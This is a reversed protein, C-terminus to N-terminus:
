PAWQGEVAFWITGRYLGDTEHAQGAPGLEGAPHFKTGIPSIGNLLTLGLEPVVAVADRADDPFRPTLLGLDLDDALVLTLVGRTTELKAWYVGGYFGALKPEHAWREATEAAREKRWVGLTGGERRNKWIRAPGRGLWEVARVTEPAVPFGVGFADRRGHSRFQYALRLWGSPSLTWRVFDLGDRYRAEVVYGAAERGHRVTALPAAAAPVLRPGDLALGGLTALRGTALDFVAQTAGAALTLRGGDERATVTGTGEGVLVSSMLRRDRRPLVWSQVERGAPDFAALELADAESSAPLPVRLRGREGPEAAPGPLEGSELVVGGSGDPRPLTLWAWRFRVAALDTMDFRNELELTGADPDADVLVVPSFIERLAYFSGSLERYPGLVGDPAHNGDTDLEGGRDSRVVAEDTFAWLFGGLALPSGRVLRWYDGLSAGSGGDYLGHLLETPLVLPPTRGLWRRWDPGGALRDRLEDYTPYHGADVGAATAHPHLVPRGQPDHEHFDGDLRVNWGGENGNAWFLISPHNVDREVMERVLRRGVETGYADHWGALEDIVYLGLEDCAELFSADPPYHSARVANLNMAKMLEVDRRDIARDLTRGSDPWFAHRNVGKLLVRRGNVFLGRGPLLEVTRFGFRESRRHLVEDGRRLELELRYLRPTEASWPRPEDVTAVLEVVEQGAAVAAAFTEGVEGGADVIRAELLAPGALGRLRARLLLAGDHRADVAVHGIAERPSAELYVPRFIGGFVWYDADREARNVSADASQKAVTVELLNDGDFDLLRTVDHRFRYFAGQHRPGASEGNLRVEADTMVGDFVIEVTRARWHAPVRFRHRYRGQEGSKREDHGYNYQGFGHLEWQSPVPITTWEGCRRGETCSFEWVVADDRGTGSLYLTETETAAAAAAVLLAASVLTYIRMVSLFSLLPTRRLVFLAELM